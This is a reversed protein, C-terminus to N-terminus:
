RRRGQLCVMPVTTRFEGQESALANLRKEVEDFLPGRDDPDVVDVWGQLFGFVTLAHRLLASGDVYRMTFAREVVREEEFGADSM